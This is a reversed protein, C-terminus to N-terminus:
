NFRAIVEMVGRTIELEGEDQQYPDHRRRHPHLKLYKPTSSRIRPSADPKASIPRSIRAGSLVLYAQPPSCLLSVATFSWARTRKARSTRNTTRKTPALASDASRETARLDRVQRCEAAGIKPKKRVALREM